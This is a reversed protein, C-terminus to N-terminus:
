NSIILRVVNPFVILPLDDGGAVRPEKHIRAAPM